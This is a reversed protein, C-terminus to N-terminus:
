SSKPDAIGKRYHVPLKYCIAAHMEYKRQRTMSRIQKSEKLQKRKSRHVELYQDQKLHKIVSSGPTLAAGLVKTRLLTSNGFWHNQLHIATHARGPFNRSHTVNKPNCRQLTRNFAECKQTSTLFRVLELSKSGLLVSICKEVSMEDDPTMKLSANGPIFEKHWHNSTLGACVYSNIQCHIGCFGKYCMVISKIVNPMHKKVEILQGKHAKFTQHLEAECWAKLDMAFRSKMNNKNKGAFMSLSFTCNHVARKMSNSLHRIDRLQTAGKGQANNVGNFSKSDGDTTINAIKLTDNLETTCQRSYETENGIVADEALNATCHGNHNPCKVAIGKNRLRSAVNCLKNGLFVSVIQKNKTNNECMTQVVQTGAQFPTVGSSYIPNNYRADSEVNVLNPNEFGCMENEVVITERIEKMDSRSHKVIVSGVKNALHQMSSLSAPIINCNITIDPFSKNSIPTTMLGAQLGINITAAKRGPGSTDVEYYLTHYQGVFDCKTCKLREKWAFGWKKSAISDFELEGDCGNREIAHEKITSNWLVSVLSPVYHKYTHNDPDSVTSELFDDLVGPSKPRPRLLMPPCPSQDVDLITLVGDSEQTVRSEFVAGKLRMFPESSSNQEYELKKGKHSPANGEKFGFIKSLQRRKRGM